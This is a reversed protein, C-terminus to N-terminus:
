KRGKPAEVEITPATPSYRETSTFGKRPSYVSERLIYGNDIKRVEVSREGGGKGIMCARTVPSAKSGSGKSKGAIVATSPRKAM